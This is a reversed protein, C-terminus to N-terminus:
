SAAGARRVIRLRGETAGQGPTVSTLEASLGPLAGIRQRIDDLASVSTARLTVELVGDRYDLAFLPLVNAAAFTPAVTAILDLGDSAAAPSASLRSRLQNVPDFVRTADPVLRRFETEMAAQQQDVRQSLARYDLLAHLLSAAGAAVLLMAAWRWIRAQGERRRRPRFEGQLLNPTMTMELRGGLWALTDDVSLLRLGEPRALSAPWRGDVAHADLGGDLRRGSALWPLWQSLEAHDGVLASGDALRLLAREGDLLLCAAGAAGHLLASDPLMREAEIGADALRQQLRRLLSADIVALTDARGAHDDGLAIQLSEVPAALQEEVAFAVAQERQGRSGPLDPARLLLAWEGAVLVTCDDAATVGPPLGPQTDGAGDLRRWRAGIGDAASADPTLHILFRRSM